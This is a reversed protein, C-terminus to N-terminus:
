WLSHIIRPKKSARDAAPDGEMSDSSTSSSSSSTSGGDGEPNQGAGILMAASGRPEGEPQAGKPWCDKCFADYEVGELDPFTKFSKLELKPRRWCDHILHLRKFRSNQSYSVVYMDVMEEDSTSKKAEAAGVQQDDFTFGSASDDVTTYYSWRGEDWTSGPQMDGKYTKDKLPISM